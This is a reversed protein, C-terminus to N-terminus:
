CWFCSYFCHQSDSGEIQVYFYWCRLRSPYCSMKDPAGPIAETIKWPTMSMTKKRIFYM